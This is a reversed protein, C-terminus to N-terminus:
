RSLKIFKVVVKEDGQVVEAYYVGAHYGSGLRVPGNSPLNNKDEVLIGLTNYVKMRVPQNSSSSINFLFQDRSPNPRLNVRLRSQGGDQETASLLGRENDPSMAMLSQSGTTLVEIASIKPNNKGGDAALSSLNINLVGDAVTATFTETTATFAGVKGVIDYNDLVKTGELTVDFRRNNVKTFFIEAFHLIVTYQGNSVPLAYGFTGSGSFRESQYIADDTTGAIASSTSQSNGPTPTYFADAAFTGISNTVQGGGSNIRYVATVVNGSSVVVNVLDAASSAGANDRVVLSFSYTGAVLGSVTPSAVLNNSFTATNPGSVQTWTYGDITGDADTGSGNLTTSSTPLTV